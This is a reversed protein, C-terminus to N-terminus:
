PQEKAAEEQCNPCIDGARGYCQGRVWGAKKMSQRVMPITGGLIDPNTRFCMDCQPFRQTVVGM